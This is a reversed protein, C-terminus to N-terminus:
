INKRKQVYLVYVLILVTVAEAVAFSLWVGAVITADGGLLEM